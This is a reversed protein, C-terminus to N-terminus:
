SRSLVADGTTIQRRHWFVADPWRRERAYHVVRAKLYDDFESRVQQQYAVLADADGNACREIAAAAAIGFRLATTIGQSSLPDFTQAADGVALWRRGVSRDLRSTQATAVRLSTEFSLDTMRRRTHSTQALQRRWRELGRSRDRAWLDGDTMFVVILQGNPLGASYWWGLDCAEVLTMTGLRERVLHAPCLGAVGILRDYSVRRAGQRRAHACARGTADVLFRVRVARTVDGVAVSLRWEGKPSMPACSAVRAGRYVRAGAQEAASALMEDFRARDVHWGHGDANFIFHEEYLDAQGWASVNGPSPTHGDAIFWDWVSLNTLPVRAIPPLTEGVRVRDYTSAEIVVSSLGARALALATATGAPGGGAIGVDYRETV